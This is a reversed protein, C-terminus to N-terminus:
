DKNTKQYVALGGLVILTVSGAIITNLSIVSTQSLVPEYNNESTELADADLLVLNGFAASLSSYAVLVADRYVTNEINLVEWALYYNEKFTYWSEATFDAEELKFRNIEVVLRILRDELCDDNGVPVEIEGFIVNLQSLIELLTNTNINLLQQAEEFSLLNESVGKSIQWFDEHLEVFNLIFAEFENIHEHTFQEFSFGLVTQLVDVGTEYSMWYYHIVPDLFRIMDRTKLFALENENTLAEFLEAEEVTWSTTATEEAFVDMPHFLLLILGFILLPKLFQKSM